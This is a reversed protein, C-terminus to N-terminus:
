ESIHTHKYLFRFIWPSSSLRGDRKRLRKWFLTATRRSVHLFYITTMFSKNQSPYHIAFWKMYVYHSSPDTSNITIRSFFPFNVKTVLRVVAPLSSHIFIFGFLSISEYRASFYNNCFSTFAKLHTM